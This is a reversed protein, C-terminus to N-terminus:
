WRVSASNLAGSLIANLDKSYYYDQSQSYKHYLHPWTLVRGQETFGTRLQRKPFVRRKTAELPMERVLTYYSDISHSQSSVWHDKLLKLLSLSNGLPSDEQLAKEPKM